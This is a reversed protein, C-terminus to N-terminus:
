RRLFCQDRPPAPRDAAASDLAAMMYNFSSVANVRGDHHVLVLLRVAPDQDRMVDHTGEYTLIYEQGDVVTAFNSRAHEIPSPGDCSALVMVIALTILLRMDLFERNQRVVEELVALMAGLTLGGWAVERELVVTSRRSNACRRRDGGAWRAQRDARAAELECGM